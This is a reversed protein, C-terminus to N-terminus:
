PTKGAKPTGADASPGGVQTPALKVVKALFKEDHETAHVVAKDGVAIDKLEVKAEGRTFETKADTQVVVAAGKEDTLTLTTGDVKAIVGKLHEMGGHALVALAVLATTVATIRSIRKM